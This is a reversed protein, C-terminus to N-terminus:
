GMRWDVPRIEYCNKQFNKIDDPDSSLQFFIKFCYYVLNFRLYYCVVLSGSCSLSFGSYDLCESLASQRSLKFVTLDVNKNGSSIEMNKVFM